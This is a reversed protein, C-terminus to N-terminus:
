PVSKREMAAPAPNGATMVISRVPSSYSRRCVIRSVIPITECDTMRLDCVVISGFAGGSSKKATQDLLSTRSSLLQRPNRNYFLAPRSSRSFSSCLALKSGEYPFFNASKKKDLFYGTELFKWSVPYYNM